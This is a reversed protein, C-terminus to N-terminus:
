RITEKIIDTVRSVIHASPNAEPKVLEFVKNFLQQVYESRQQESTHEQDVSLYSYVLLNIANTYVDTVESELVISWIMDLHLM